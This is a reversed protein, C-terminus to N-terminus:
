IKIKINDILRTKGIKAAIVVYYWIGEELKEIVNFKEDVVSVYNLHINKEVLFLAGINKIIRKVDREGAEIMQRTENLSKFLLLAKERDEGTLYINRSSLALGDKERIIPCEIIEIGYKLDYVMQKIVATQQADKQGFFAFDPNVCNFLIAVITTVGRFHEPRLEGELIKTTQNVVVNSQFGEQYIDKEDPLFLYDAKHEHLFKKDREIDRPYISFDENPAFQAPNIFISVITVDAKAKCEKLLSLHGEHLYGM